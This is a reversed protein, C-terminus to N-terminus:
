TDEEFPMLLWKRSAGSPDVAFYEAVMDASPQEGPISRVM